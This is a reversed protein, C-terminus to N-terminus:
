PNKAFNAASFGARNVLKVLGQSTPFVYGEGGVQGNISSQVTRQQQDLQAIINDKLKTLSDVISFAGTLGDAHTQLYGHYGTNVDGLLTKVKNVSVVGPLWDAFTRNEGRVRANLYKQMLAGLDKSKIRTLEVPDLLIDVAAGFKKIDANVAKVLQVPTKLSVQDTMHPTFIAVPGNPSLDGTDQLMVPEEDFDPFFQHVVIGGVSQGIRRGIDSTAPISYQVTNPKFVYNGQVPALKGTWLLDGWYYGRSNAPIMQELAPWLVQVKKYLDGRNAGRNVDYQVFEEVSTVRGSGDKKSFMHKDALVLKGDHNRGFVLAPFGDWKVTLNQPQEIVDLLAREARLAGKSGESFVLDEPHDIRTGETLINIFELVIM